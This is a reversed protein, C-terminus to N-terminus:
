DAVVTYTTGDPSFSVSSGTATTDSELFQYEGNSYEIAPFGFKTARYIATTTASSLSKTYLQVRDKNTPYNYLTPITSTDITTNM